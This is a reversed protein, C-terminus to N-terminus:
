IIIARLRRALLAFMEPLVATQNEQDVDQPALPHM